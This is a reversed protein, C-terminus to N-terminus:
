GSEEGAGGVPGSLGRLVRGIAVRRAADVWSLKRSVATRLMRIDLGLKAISSGTGSRHARDPVSNVCKLRM